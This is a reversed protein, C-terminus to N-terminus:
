NNRETREGVLAELKALRQELESVRQTQSQDHAALEEIRREQGAIRLDRDRIMAHLEQV